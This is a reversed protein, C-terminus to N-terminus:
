SMSGGKFLGKEKLEEISTTYASERVSQSAVWECFKRLGQEFSVKPAFDIFERAKRTDAYNHRIDGVRYNGSITTAVSRGYAEFLKEVVQNVTIPIGSGINFVRNNANPNLVASCTADVVDDIYVFDRSESGDEFINIDQGNLILASFISLIGTYPNNLSQGPGYVNQYRLACSPVGFSRGFLMFMQEQVQKTIGYFSAPQVKAHEDTAIADVDGGCIPCRPDFRGADLDAELRSGPYVVGDRPCNYSGEGFIARSSAVVMKKFQSRKAQVLQLIMATAQINVMSYHEIDYMSQGTGTEAALHILADCDTLCKTMADRDCVDAQICQVGYSELDGFDSGGHVQPSLNDVVRVNVGASVLKKAVRSGIFGAGGTILVRKLFVM